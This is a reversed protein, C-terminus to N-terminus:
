KEKMKGSYEVQFVEIEKLTFNYAGVLSEKTDSGGEYGNPFNSYNTNNQDGNTACYIDHGSGFTPLYNNTYIANGSTGSKLPYKKKNTVSFIFAKTTAKYNSTNSWDQDEVFGGFIKDYNSKILTLTPKIKKVKAQFKDQAFGDRTGRYLLKFKINGSAGIWKKIMNVDAYKNVLKSDMTGTNGLSFEFIGDNISFGETLCPIVEGKVKDMLEKTGLESMVLTPVNKSQVKLLTGMEKLSDKMMKMKEDISGGLNRSSVLDDTINKIALEYDQYQTARNLTTL